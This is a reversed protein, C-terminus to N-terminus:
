RVARRKTSSVVVNVIRTRTISGSTATLELRYTRSPTPVPTTLTVLLTQGANV